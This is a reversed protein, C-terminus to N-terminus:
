YNSPCSGGTTHQNAVKWVGPSVEIMEARVAVKEPPTIPPVPKGTAAYVLESSDFACDLVVADSGRIYSVKPHLQVTGRGVIGSAQDASLIRRVSDFETGTMTQTLAPLAPNGQDVAQEFAQWGARYAALVAAAQSNTTTTSRDHSSASSGGCAAALGAVALLGITAAARFRTRNPFRTMGCTVARAPLRM